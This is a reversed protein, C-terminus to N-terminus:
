VIRQGLSSRSHLKGKLTGEGLNHTLGRQMIAVLMQKRKPKPIQYFQEPTFNQISYGRKHVVYFNKDARYNASLGLRPCEQRLFNEIDVKM